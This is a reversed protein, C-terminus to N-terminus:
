FRVPFNLKANPGPGFYKLAALDHSRAAQEESEYSGVHM